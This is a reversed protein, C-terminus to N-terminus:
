RHIAHAKANGDYLFHTLTLINIIFTCSFNYLYCLTNVKLVFNVLLLILSFFYKSQLVKGQTDIKFLCDYPVSQLAGLFVSYLLIIPRKKKM